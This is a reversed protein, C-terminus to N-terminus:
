SAAVALGLLLGILDPLGEKGPRPVTEPGRGRGRSEGRCLRSSREALECLFFLGGDVISMPMSLSKCEVRCRRGFRERQAASGPRYATKIFSLTGAGCRGDIMYLEAHM